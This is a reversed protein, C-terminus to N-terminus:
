VPHIVYTVVGWVEFQTEPLIRISEFEPNEPRLEIGDKERCFRKVTMEGDVVAVIVKGDPNDVARDVVLLDGSFIGAGTMSDGCVRVYFTAEPHTILRENLDLRKEIYDDAPSPFGAPVSSLATPILVHRSYDAISISVVTSQM